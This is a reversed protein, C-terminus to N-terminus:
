KEDCNKIKTEFLSVKSLELQYLVGEPEGFPLGEAGCVSFGLHDYLTKVMANKETPIFEGILFKCGMKAAQEAIVNFTFEEVGRKLVRCSMVWTDIFCNEADKKLIVCSIVGYNSFCDKLSVKLLLYDQNAFMAQINGESYRKTRLNFQNTKNILQTFRELDDDGVACVSGQMNLAQLYEEYNVFSSELEMRKYNTAYTETRNLDETTVQLWEFPSAQDLAQVYKAPDQPVDIVQVMPLYQKIIAREAPNDDFFVFSDLGINLEKAITKLNTAKDEWNAVFCSIDELKLLMFPNKLFASKAIDVDNKSCVALIVGRNKLAVLYNQFALFAEGVANTPDLQIGEAGCDGIVGGWLTNDLDLVLCKRVQGVVAKLQQVFLHVFKGLYALNLGQKSLFYNSEDYWQNRGILCALAEADVITVNRERKEALSLNLLRYYNSRSFLYNAELNGLVNEKPLVFNTQFIHCSLKSQIHSWINQYYAAVEDAAKQVAAKDSFLAPFHKVDEYSTWLIVADPEFKYFDSHEDFVDMAIGNYEGEYIEAYIDHQYLMYKLATVFYQLSYSGLVAIKIQKMQEPIQFDPKASEKKLRRALKLLQLYDLEDTPVESVIEKM